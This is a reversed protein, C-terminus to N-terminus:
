WLESLDNPCWAAEANGAYGASRKRASAATAATAPARPPPSRGGHSRPVDWSGRGVRATSCSPAALTRGPGTRIDAM